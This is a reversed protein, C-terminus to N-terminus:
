SQAAMDNSGMTLFPDEVAKKHRTAVRLSRLSDVAQYFRGRREGHPVLLGAGVLAKLDRSALHDSIGAAGRYTANRVRYGLTADLLALTTREPLRRRRVEQEIRDWVTGAREIRQLSTTAQRYHATLCFRIWRRADRRPDWHGGRAEALVAHYELRNRGFYEEISSFTPEIVGSRALILTHLARAMRGNGDSFPHILVLNLHAMAARVVTPPRSPDSNLQSVLEDVLEPVEEPDPGYHLVKNRVDDRVVFDGSRWQGPSKEPAHELMM